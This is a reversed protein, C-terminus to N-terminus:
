TIGIGDVLALGITVVVVKVTLYSIGAPWGPVVLRQGWLASSVQQKFGCRARM